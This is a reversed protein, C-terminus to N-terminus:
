VPTAPASLPMVMAKTAGSEKLTKRDMVSKVPTTIPPRAVMEPAIKPARNTWNTGFQAWSM